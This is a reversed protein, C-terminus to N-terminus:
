SKIKTGLYEDPPHISEPNFLFFHNILSLIEQPNMSIALINDTYVLLYYEKDNTVSKVALCFWVDLDGQSIIRLWPSKYVKSSPKKISCRGIEPWITRTGSAIKDGTLSL